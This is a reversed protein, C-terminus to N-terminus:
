EYELIEKVLEPKIWKDFFPDNQANLIFEKTKIISDTHLNYYMSVLELDVNKRREVEEEFQVKKSEVYAEYGLRFKTPELERLMKWHEYSVPDYQDLRVNKDVKNFYFLTGRKLELM